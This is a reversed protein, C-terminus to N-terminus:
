EATGDDPSGDLVDDVAVDDRVGTSEEDVVDDVVDQDVIMEGPQPSETQVDPEGREVIEAASVDEGPLTADQVREQASREAGGSRRRRAAGVAGAVADVGVITKKLGYGIWRGVSVSSSDESEPENGDVPLLRVM